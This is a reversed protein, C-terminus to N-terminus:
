ARWKDGSTGAGLVTVTNIQEVNVDALGSTVTLTRGPTAARLAEFGTFWVRDGAAVTFDMVAGDSTCVVNFLRASQVSVITVHEVQGNTADWVALTAGVLSADATDSDLVDTLLIRGATNGTTTAITCGLPYVCENYLRAADQAQSMIECSWQHVVVQTDLTEDPSFVVHIFAGATDTYFGADTNDSFDFSVTHSGALGDFTEALTFGTTSTRQTASLNKYLDFDAVEITASFAESGGDAAHSTFPVRWTGGRAIQGYHM